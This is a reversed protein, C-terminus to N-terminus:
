FHGVIIDAASASSCARCLLINDVADFTVIYCALNEFFLLGISYRHITEASKALNLYAEGADGPRPHIIVAYGRGAFGIITRNSRMNYCLIKEIPRSELLVRYGIGGIIRYNSCM